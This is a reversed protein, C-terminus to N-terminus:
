EASPASPTAQSPMSHLVKREFLARPLADGRAFDIWFAVVGVAGLVHLAALVRTRLEARLGGQSGRRMTM